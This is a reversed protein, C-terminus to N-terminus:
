IFSKNVRKVFNIEDFYAFKVKKNSLKIEIKKFEDVKFSENDYTFLALEGIGNISITRNDSLLLSSQLTKYSNSNIGAIETIQICSINHDIVSGGLSKNYGTSGLPASICLGGGRFTELKQEDIVVDLTIMNPASTITVENLAVGKISKNDYDFKYELLKHEEVDFHINNNISDIIKSVDETKFNTLFGLHGTHIGFFTVSELKDSYKHIGRLITGDGGIVFVIDPQENDRKLKINKEIQKEISISNNCGKSVISYKNM